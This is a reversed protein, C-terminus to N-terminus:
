IDVHYLVTQLADGVGGREGRGYYQCHRSLSVSNIMDLQETVKDFSIRHAHLYSNNPTHDYISIYKRTEEEVM